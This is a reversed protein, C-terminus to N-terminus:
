QQKDKKYYSHKAQRNQPLQLAAAVLSLEEEDLESEADSSELSLLKMFDDQSGAIEDAASLVRFLSQIKNNKIKV